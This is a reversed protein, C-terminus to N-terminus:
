KRKTQDEQKIKQHGAVISDYVSDPVPKLLKIITDCIINLTALQQPKTIDDPIPNEVIHKIQNLLNLVSEHKSKANELNSQKAIITPQSTILEITSEMIKSQWENIAKNINNIIERDSQEAKSALIYFVISAALSMLGVTLSIISITDM